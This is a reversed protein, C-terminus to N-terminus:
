RRRPRPPPAAGEPAAYAVPLAYRQVLEEALPGPAVLSTRAPDFALRAAANERALRQDLARYDLYALGSAVLNLGYVAIPAVLLWRPAAGRLADAGMTLLGLNLLVGIWLPSLLFVIIVNVVPIQQILLAPIMALFLLYWTPRAPSAAPGRDVAVQVTPGARRGFPRSSESM